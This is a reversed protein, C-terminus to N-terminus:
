NTIHTHYLEGAKNKLFTFMDADRQDPRRNHYAKVTNPLPIAGKAVLPSSVVEVTKSAFQAVLKTALTHRVKTQSVGHMIMHAVSKTPEAHPNTWATVVAVAIRVNGIAVTNIHIRTYDM